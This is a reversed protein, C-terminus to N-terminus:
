QLFNKEYTNIPFRPPIYGCGIIFYSNDLHLSVFIHEVSNISIKLLKSKLNVNVAILVGGGRSYNNNLPSRDCRYIIYNNFGLESNSIIDSLWTKTFVIIDSHSTNLSPILQNIETVLSRVNQYYM